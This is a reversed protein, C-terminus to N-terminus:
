AYEVGAYEFGSQLCLETCYEASNSKKNVGLYGTLLRFNNEDKFCGLAHGKTKGEVPCHGSLYKPYLDEALGLCFVNAIYQKCKQTKARHIASIAEKTNIECAPKFSLEEVRLNTANTTLVTKQQETKTHKTPSNISQPQWDDHTNNKSLDLFNAALFIQFLLILVGIFFFIKYKRLWRGNGGKLAVM